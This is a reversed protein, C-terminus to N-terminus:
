KKIINKIKENVVLLKMISNLEARLAVADKADIELKFGDKTKKVNLSSRNGRQQEPIFCEALEKDKIEINAIYSM